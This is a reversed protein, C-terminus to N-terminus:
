ERFRKFSGVAGDFTQDAQSPAAENLRLAKDFQDFSRIPAECQTGRCLYAICADAPQKLALSEPLDQASSPIAFSIRRPAYHQNAR